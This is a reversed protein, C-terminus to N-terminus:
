KQEEEEKKEKEKAICLWSSKIVEEQEQNEGNIKDEEKTKLAQTEASEM